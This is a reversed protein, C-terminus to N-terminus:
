DPKWEESSKGFTSELPVLSRLIVFNLPCKEMKRLRDAANRLNTVGGNQYRKKRKSDLSLKIKNHQERDINVALTKRYPKLLQSNRM